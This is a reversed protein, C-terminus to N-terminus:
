GEFVVDVDNPVIVVRDENVMPGPRGAGPLRWDLYATGLCRSGPDAAVDRGVAVSCANPVKDAAKTYLGKDHGWPTAWRRGRM